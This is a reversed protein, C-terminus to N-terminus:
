KAKIEKLKDVRKECKYQRDGIAEVRVNVIRTSSELLIQVSSFLDTDDNHFVSASKFILNNLHGQDMSRDQNHRVSDNCHSIPEWEGKLLRSAEWAPFSYGDLFDEEKQWHRVMTERM